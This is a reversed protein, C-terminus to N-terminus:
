PIPNIWKRIEQGIFQRAQTLGEPDTTEPAHMDACHSTGNILIAPADDSLSETIGMAHWPDITGHVFVVNSVSPTFGGYEINTQDIGRQTLYENLDSGFADSCM